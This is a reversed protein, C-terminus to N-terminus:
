EEWVITDADDLDALYMRLIEPHDSPTCKSLDSGVIQWKDKKAPFADLIKRFTKLDEKYREFGKQSCDAVNM